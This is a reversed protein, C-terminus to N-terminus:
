RNRCKFFFNNERDWKNISNNTIKKEESDTNPLIPIFFNFQIDINQGM